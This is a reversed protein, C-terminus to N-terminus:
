AAMAWLIPSQLFAFIVGTRIRSAADIPSGPVVSVPLAPFPFVHLWKIIVACLPLVLPRHDQPAITIAALDALPIAPGSLGSLHMVDLVRVLERLQGVVVAIQDAQAM